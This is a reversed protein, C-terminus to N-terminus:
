SFADFFLSSTEPLIRSPIARIHCAPMSRVKVNREVETISGIIRQVNAGEKPIDKDSDRVRKNCVALSTWSMVFMNSVQEAGRQPRDVKSNGYFFPPCPKREMGAVPSPLAPDANTHSTSNTEGKIKIREGNPDVSAPRRRCREGTSFEACDGHRADQMQEFRPTDLARPENRTMGDFGIPGLAGLYYLLAMLYPQM